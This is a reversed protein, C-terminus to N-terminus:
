FLKRSAEYKTSQPTSCPQRAVSADHHEPELVHDGAERVARVAFVVHAAVLGDLDQAAYRGEEAHLDRQM